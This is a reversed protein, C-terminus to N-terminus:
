LPEFAFNSRLVAVILLIIIAISLNLASVALSQRRLMWLQREVRPGATIAARQLDLLRPGLYFSHWASLAVALGVLIVKGLLLWGYRLSFPDGITQLRDGATLIGSVILLAMAGWALTNYRSTLVELARVRLPAQDISRIAPIAVLFLFVQPGVWATAALLHIWLVFTYGTM